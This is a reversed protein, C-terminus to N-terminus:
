KKVGMMADFPNSERVSPDSRGRASAVSEPFWPKMDPVEGDAVSTVLNYTSAAMSDAVDKSGFAGIEIKVKTGDVVRKVSQVENILIEHYPMDIREEMFCAALSDYPDSTRDVSLLDVPFGMQTLMNISDRSQFGDFTVGAINLGMKALYVFFRRIKAYDIYDGEFNQIRLFFDIYIRFETGQFVGQDSNYRPVTVLGAPCSCTIGAACQNAALDVHIYRGVGPLFTPRFRTGSVDVKRFMIDRDFYEHIEVPDKVGIFITSDFPNKRGYNVCADVKGPDPLLKGASEVQVGSIDQLSRVVNLKYVGYLSRPVREIKSEPVDLVENDELIRAPTIRDGVYVRFRDTEEKYEPIVDYIAYRSVHVRPNGENSRKHFATFDTEDRSSSALCLLSPRRFRSSIRKSIDAYLSSMTSRATMSDKDKRERFNAEDMLGGIVNLGLANIASSGIIISINNPLMKLLDSTRNVKSSESVVEMFASSQKVYHSLTKYAADRSLYQFVNFFAVVIPSGAILGYHEAPSRMIMLLFLKYALAVLSVTTKGIGIAGDLIWETVENAPDLVRELDSKWEVRLENGIFGFYDGNYLFEKPTPPRRTYDVKWLLESISSEGSMQLEMLVSVLVAVEEETLEDFLSRDDDKLFRDVYYGIPRSETGVKKDMSNGM